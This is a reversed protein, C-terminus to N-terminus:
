LGFAYWSLKVSCVRLKLFLMQYFKTARDLVFKLRTLARWNSRHYLVVQIARSGGLSWCGRMSGYAYFQKTSFVILCQLKAQTLWIPTKWCCATATLSKCPLCQRQRLAIGFHRWGSAKSGTFVEYYKFLYWLFASLWLVSGMVGMAWMDCM